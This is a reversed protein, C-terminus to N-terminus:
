CFFFVHVHILSVRIKNNADTFVSTNGNIIEAFVVPGKYWYGSQFEGDPPKAPCDLQVTEGAKQIVNKSSAAASPTGEVFLVM